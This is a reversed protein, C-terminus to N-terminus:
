LVHQDVKSPGRHVEFGMEMVVSEVKDFLDKPPHTSTFRIKRQAADQLSDM